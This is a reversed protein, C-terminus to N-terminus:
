FLYDNYNSHLLVGKVKEIEIRKLQGYLEDLQLLLGEDDPREQLKLKMTALVKELNENLTRQKRARQKSFSVLVSKMSM